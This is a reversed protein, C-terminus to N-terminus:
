DVRLSREVSIQWDSPGTLGILMPSPLQATDLRFSFEVYHRADPDLQALDALKWGSTRTIAGLAENLSAYSQSIAGIGVRWTSTLPQYVVRWTRAVRSVREDRWYWRNRLLTAQAVFYVPVGRQLAEEVTRPLNLRVAFDLTLESERRQVLISPLEVGPTVAQVQLLAQSPAQSAGQGLAPTPTSVQALVQAQVRLPVGALAALLALALLWAAILPLRLSM